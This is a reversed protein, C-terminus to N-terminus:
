KRTTIIDSGGAVALWRVLRQTIDIRITIGNFESQRAPATILPLGQKADAAANLQDINREAACEPLVNRTLQRLAKIVLVIDMEPDVVYLTVSEPQGWITPKRLLEIACLQYGITHVVLRELRYSRAEPHSSQRRIPHDFRHLTFTIVEHNPYLAVGLM